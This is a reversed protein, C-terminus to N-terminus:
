HKLVFRLRRSVQIQRIARLFLLCQALRWTVENHLKITYCSTQGGFFFKCGCIAGAASRTMTILTIHCLCADALSIRTSIPSGLYARLQSANCIKVVRMQERGWAGEQFMSQLWNRGSWTPLSRKTPPHPQGRIAVAGQSDEVNQTSM